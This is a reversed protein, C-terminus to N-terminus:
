IQASIAMSYSNGKQRNSSVYFSNEGSVCDLTLFDLQLFSLVDLLNSFPAPFEVGLNWQVSCIIQLTSWMVKLDGKDVHKLISLCQWKKVADRARSRLAIAIIGIICLVGMIIIPTTNSASECPVCLALSSSFTYGDM